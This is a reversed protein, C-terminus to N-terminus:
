KNAKFNASMLIDSRDSLPQQNLSPPNSAAAVSGQGVSSAPSMLTDSLCSDDLSSHDGRPVVKALQDPLPLMLTSYLSGLSKPLTHIYSPLSFLDFIMSFILDIVAIKGLINFKTNWVM